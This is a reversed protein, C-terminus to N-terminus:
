GRADTALRWELVEGDEPHHVTGECTFGLKQLIRTSANTEQLTQAIIVLAPDARRAIAVLERVMQTAHGRREFAEFTHYAVEVHGDFPASKFACEGVQVGDAYASYGGWPTGGPKM